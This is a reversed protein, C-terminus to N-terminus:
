ATTTPTGPESGKGARSSRRATSTSSPPRTGGNSATVFAGTHKAGFELKEVTISLEESSRTQGM